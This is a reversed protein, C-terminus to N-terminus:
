VIRDYKDFLLDAASEDIVVGVDALADAFSSKPISGTSEIDISFFATELDENINIFHHLYRPHTENHNSGIYLCCCPIGALAPCFRLCSKDHLQQRSHNTDSTMAEPPEYEYRRLNRMLM